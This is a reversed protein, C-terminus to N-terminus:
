RGLLENAKKMNAIIPVDFPCRTECNGCGTCEDGRHALNQYHSRISPPINSTDLKAIDLYKNVVAIDIKSPCPQCHNCYVCSGHLGGRVSSLIETYDREADSLDLYKVAEKIEEPTKCGLLASAVAPRSLVYHICQSVTLAKVFPTHERSILKGAGLTKMTTIGVNKQECLRYLEARKPEVGTFSEANFGNELHTFISEETPIIDFAPNISFLMIEPLGTNIAKIATIPNHSSFGIHGIDGKEKLKLVYDAIETEFVNKYDDDSDIFFLMGFDIYGGCLRLHEEFYRKVIHIDRSIDYQQETDASCIHGQILIEKRRSGLARSINERVEKGSMFIDFINIGYELAADITSKVQEYPKLDLHECGLGIISAKKGTKGIERYIM